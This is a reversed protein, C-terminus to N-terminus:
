AKNKIRRIKEAYGGREFEETPFPYKSDAKKLIGYGIRLMFVGIFLALYVIRGLVNTWDLLGNSITYYFWYVGVPIHGFTVALLGPTYIKNGIQKPSIIGHVIFQSIGFLVPMFGIWMIEPFIVPLLYVIYAAAVNIVMANNQNLPYRDDPGEPSPNTALNIIAPEGGPFRYEEFQHWFIVAFNMLALRELVSISNWNVSLYVISIVMPILGIDYWHNRIFKM